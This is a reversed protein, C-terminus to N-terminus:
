DGKLSGGGPYHECSGEPQPHIVIGWSSCVMFVFLVAAEDAARTLAVDDM